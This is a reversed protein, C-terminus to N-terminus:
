ENNEGEKMEPIETDPLERLRVEVNLGFKENLEKVAQQRTSLCANIMTSLQENNSNVEDTILRERKNASPNSNIGLFSLADNWVQRKQETLKDVLYPADTKYVKMSDMDLSKTGYIVPANGDYQNFLNKFTLREKENCRIIVPTKQATINIDTTRVLEALRWAFLSITEETCRSLYNNRVIVIEDSEYYESYGVSYATYGVSEEYVNMEASPTVRLNILGDNVKHKCFCAVGNEFLVRELFRENCTPPLNVWEFRSLALIKLREYYDLFTKVNVNDNRMMKMFLDKAM